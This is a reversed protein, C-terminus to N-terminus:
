QPQGRRPVQLTQAQGNAVMRVQRTATATRPGEGGSTPGGANDAYSRLVVSIYGEYRSNLVLVAQEPLMELTITEGVYANEEFGGAIQDVGLVRSNEVLVRSQAVRKSQEVSQGAESGGILSRSQQEMPISVIVDVHDGPLVFGGAGTDAAIPISVARMGPEVLAAMMGAEGAQVVKRPDFVEGSYLEFRVIAGALAERADPQASRVLASELVSDKPWARWQLHDPTLRMGAGIDERLTLVDVTQVEAVPAPINAAPGPAPQMAQRVFLAAALAAVGALILVLIRVM